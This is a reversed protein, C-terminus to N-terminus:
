IPYYAYLYVIIHDRVYYAYLYVIIHDRVDPYTISPINKITNSKM